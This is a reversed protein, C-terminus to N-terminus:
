GVEGGDCLDLLGIAEAERNTIMCKSCMLEGHGLRSTVWKHSRAALAKIRERVQDVSLGPDILIEVCKVPMSKGFLEILEDQTIDDIM